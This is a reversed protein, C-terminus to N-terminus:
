KNLITVGLCLGGALIALCVQGTGDADMANDVLINKKKLNKDDYYINSITVLFSQSNNITVLFSM